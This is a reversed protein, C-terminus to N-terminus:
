RFQIRFIVFLYLFCNNTVGNQQQGRGKRTNLTTLAWLVELVFAILALIFDRGREAISQVAPLLTKIETRTNAIRLLTPFAGLFSRLHHQKQARALQIRRGVAVIGNPVSDLVSDLALNGVFCAARISFISRVFAERARAKHIAVPVM